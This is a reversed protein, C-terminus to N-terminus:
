RFLYMKQRPIKETEQFVVAENLRLNANNLPFELGTSARM